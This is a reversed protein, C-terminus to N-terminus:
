YFISEIMSNFIDYENGVLWKNYRNVRMLEDMEIDNIDLITKLEEKSLEKKM